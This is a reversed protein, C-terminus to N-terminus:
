LAGLANCNLCLYLLVNHVSQLLHQELLFSCLWRVTSNVSVNNERWGIVYYNRNM